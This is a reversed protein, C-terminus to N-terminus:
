VKLFDVVMQTFGDYSNPKTVVNAVGLETCAEIFGQDNYTSYIIVPIHQYEPAAKLAILTDKGSMLPMNQDLIILHPLDDNSRRLFALVEQGNEVTSLTFERQTLESFVTEFILRDDEDDDALLVRKTM